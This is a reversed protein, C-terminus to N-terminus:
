SRLSRITHMRLADQDFAYTLHLIKGEDLFDFAENRIIIQIHAGLPYGLEFLTMKRIEEGSSAPTFVNVYRGAGPVSDAAAPEEGKRCEPCLLDEPFTRGSHKMVRIERGCVPCTDTLIFEAHTLKRYHLQHVLIEFDDTGQDQRVASFMDELTTELVSGPLWRLERPPLICCGPCGRKRMPRSESIGLGPYATYALRRNLVGDIGTVFARMQEASLHAAMSSALNSTRIIEPVGDIMRIQPSGCSTRVSSDRLWSEEILCRLCFERGDLIVSQATEERTGAMIVVPRRSNELQMVLENFLIKADYNDLALAVLDYDAFAEPGLLCLDADIGNSTCGEDLLPQIRASTCEAKNRGTDEPTRVLCSGKAANELTFRDFDLADSSVGMKAFFEMLASGVAGAGAVLVKKGKFYKRYEPLKLPNYIASM